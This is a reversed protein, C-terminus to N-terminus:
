DVDDTYAHRSKDHVDGGSHHVDDHVAVKFIVSAVIGNACVADDTAIGDQCGHQEHADALTHLWQQIIIM